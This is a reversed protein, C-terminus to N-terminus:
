PTATLKRSPAPSLRSVALSGAGGAGSARGAGPAAGTGGVPGPAAGGGPRVFATAAGPLSGVTMQTATITSGDASGQGIVTVQDGAKLDTTTIVLNNAFTTTDSVVAKVTTGDTGILTITKGNISDVTGAAPIGLTQGAALAAGALPMTGTVAAGPAFTTTSTIIQPGTPANSKTTLEIKRGNYTGLDLQVNKKAMLVGAVLGGVLVLIFLKGFNRRLLDM